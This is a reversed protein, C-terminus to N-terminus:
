VREWNIEADSQRLYLPRVEAPRWSSRASSRRPRRWSSSRPPARRTSRPGPRGRRARARRVGGPVPGRRRRRAAAGRRGRGARRGARRAPAGPVRVGAARRRAGPPVVGLVGRPAPRRAGGRGAPRHPAAPLRRPRPEADRGGPRAAGAGPRDRHDRGVRLGTFLGPGTGVAVAALHDLSVGCSTACRSSPPLSCSPTAGRAPM